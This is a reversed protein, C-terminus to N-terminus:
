LSNIKNELENNCCCVEVDFSKTNFNYGVSKADALLEGLAKTNKNIEYNYVKESINGNTFNMFSKCAEENIAEMRVLLGKAIINQLEKNM